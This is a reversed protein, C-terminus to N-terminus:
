LVSYKRLIDELKYLEDAMSKKGDLCRCLGIFAIKILKAERLEICYRLGDLMFLATERDTENMKVDNILFFLKSINQKTNDVIAADTKIPVFDGSGDDTIAVDATRKLLINVNKLFPEIIAACFKKFSEDKREAKFYYTLFDVFNIAGSDFYYLLNIVMAVSKKEFPSLEFCSDRGIKKVCLKFEKQYDFNLVCDNVINQLEKSNAIVKLIQTIKQSTMIVKSNTFDECAKTLSAFADENKAM